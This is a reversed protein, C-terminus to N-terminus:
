KKLNIKFENLNLVMIQKYCYLVVTIFVQLFYFIFLYQSQFGSIFNPFGIGIRNIGTICQIKIGINEYWTPACRIGRELGVVM